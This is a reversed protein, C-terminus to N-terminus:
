KISILESFLLFSVKKKDIMKVAFQEGSSIEIAVYTYGFQGHGLLKGQRFKQNFNTPYGFTTPKGFPLFVDNKFKSKVNPSDPKIQDKKIKLNGEPKQDPISACGGM